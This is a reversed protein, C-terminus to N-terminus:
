CDLWKRCKTSKNLHVKSPITGPPHLEMMPADGPPVQKDPGASGTANYPRPWLLYLASASAVCVTTTRLGGRLRRPGAPIQGAHLLQRKAVPYCKHQIFCSAAGRRALGVTDNGRFRSDLNYSSEMNGLAPKGCLLVTAPVFWGPSSSPCSHCM